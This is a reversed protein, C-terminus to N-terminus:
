SLMIIEITDSGRERFRIFKLGVLAGRLLRCALLVLLWSVRPLRLPLDLRWPWVLKRTCRNPSNVLRCALYLPRRVLWVLVLQVALRALLLLNRRPLLTRRVVCLVRLVRFCLNVNVNMRWCFLHLLRRPRVRQGLRWRLPRLIFLPCLRCSELILLLVVLIHMGRTLLDFTPASLIRSQLRCKMGRSCRPRRLLLLKVLTNLLRLRSLLRLWFLLRILRLIKILLRWIILVLVLILLSFLLWGYAVMLNLLVMLLRMLM